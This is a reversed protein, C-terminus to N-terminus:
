RLGQLPECECLCVPCEFASKNAGLSLLEAKLEEALARQEQSDAKATKKDNKEAKKEEGGIGEGGGWNSVPKKFHSNSPLFVGVNEKRNKRRCQRRWGRRRV